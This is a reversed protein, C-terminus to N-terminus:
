EEALTTNAVYDRAQEASGVCDMQVKGDAGIRAVAHDMLEYPLESVLTGQGNVWMPALRANANEPTMGELRSLEASEFPTAPRLKGTVPDISVVLGSRNVESSISVPALAEGTSSPAPARLSGLAVGSLVVAGAIFRVFWRRNM